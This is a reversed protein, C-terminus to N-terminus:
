YLQVHYTGSLQGLTTKLFGPDLELALCPAPNHDVKSISFYEFRKLESGGLGEMKWLHLSLRRVACGISVLLLPIIISLFAHM